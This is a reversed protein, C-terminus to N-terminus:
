EFGNSFIVDTAGNCSLGVDAVPDNDTNSTVQLSASLLGGTLPACEISLPFSGAPAIEVPLEPSPLDAPDTITFRAADAGTISLGTVALTATGTNSITLGASRQQGVPVNGFDVSAPSFAILRVTGNGTLDKAANPNIDGDSTIQITADQSGASQPQFTVGVQVTQGAPIGGGTFGSLLYDEANIAPILVGTVFLDLEGTNTLGFYLTESSDGVHIDGFALPAPTVELQSGIGTGDVLYVADGDPDNSFLTIECQYLGRGTPVFSISMSDTQGPDLSLPMAPFSSDFQDCGTTASETMSTIGLPVDGDNGIVVVQNRSAGIATEGFGWPSPPDLTLNPTVATTGETMLVPPSRGHAVWADYLRQGADNTVNEDRLFEVVEKSITQYYLRVNVTTVEAPLDYHTDDWYQGDAYTYGIPPSQIAEFAANTFGRPPIRNDLYIKDNLVFHFSPGEQMGLATALGPSLGPKIEYVKAQADETLVGTSEEYAGSEFIMSGYQDFGQVNLWMRRGEPYGSILKHGTENIIRVNIGTSDPTLQMTAARQLMSAARAKAANLQSADVEDPYVDAVLDPIFTNGGTLDHLPMDERLPTGAVNSGYASVDPMHCDQCISVMGDAKNGAFQPAYVGTTAYESNQWESFTREVPYMNRLDQDVHEADFTGPTYENAGAQEFVPNSVDHCTGCLEASRHFPSEVSLHGVEIVDSFPGRKISGPDNIFQGNGYQLPLPSIDALIDGDIAPSSGEEYDRDVLRHCFDCQVGQRDKANLMGGSTDTSRGEQWGGPTHCRLCLDGSSPADQEAIALMAYFFPDRAAQAMMSGRWTSWPESASDYNGHCNVCDTDPDSLVAGELPQTGPMDMDRLTTPVYGAPLGTITFTADSDDFNMNGAGDIAYVRVLNETGPRNPVFWSWSGDNGLNRAIPHWSSGGDDSFDIAIVSIGSTDTASYTVTVTNGAQLNEAGIPSIVNVAPPTSDVTTTPVLYPQIDALDVRTTDTYNSDNLGPFTPTNTYTAWDYMEDINSYGDGDSDLNEISHIATQRGPDDYVYNALANEVAVGYPNRTGAGTFRFHCVGCHPSQSPLDHLRTNVLEPYAAFFSDFIEPKAQAYQVFLGFVLLCTLAAFSPKLIREFSHGSIGPSKGADNLSPQIIPIVPIASILNLLFTDSLGEYGRSM